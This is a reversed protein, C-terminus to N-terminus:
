SEEQTIITNSRYYPKEMARALWTPLINRGPDVYRSIPYEEEVEPTAAQLAEATLRPNSM